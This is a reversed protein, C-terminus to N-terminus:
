CSYSIGFVWGLDLKGYSYAIESPEEMRHYQNMRTCMLDKRTESNGHVIVRVFTVEKREGGKLQVLECVLSGRKEVM